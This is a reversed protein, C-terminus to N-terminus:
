GPGLLERSVAATRWQRYRDPKWGRQIVLRQYPGHGMALWCLDAAEARDLGARLGGISDLHDIFARAGAMRHADSTRLMAAAEPDVQAAALLVAGIPAARSGSM